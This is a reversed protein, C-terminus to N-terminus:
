LPPPSDCRQWTTYCPALPVSCVESSIERLRADRKMSDVDNLIDRIQGEVLTLKVGAAAKATKQAVEILKEDVAVSIKNGSQEKLNSM